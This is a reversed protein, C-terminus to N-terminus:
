QAEGITLPLCHGIQAGGYAGAIARCNPSVRMSQGASLAVEPGITKALGGSRKLKRRQFLTRGNRYLVSMAQRCQEPIDLFPTSSDEARNLRQTRLAGAGRGLRRVRRRLRWKIRGRQARRQLAQLGRQGSEVEGAGRLREVRKRRQAQRSVQALPCV